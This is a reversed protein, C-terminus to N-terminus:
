TLSTERCTLSGVNWFSITSSKKPRTRRSINIPNL